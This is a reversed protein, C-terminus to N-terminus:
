KREKLYSLVEEMQSKLGDIQEQQDDIRIYAKQLMHAILMIFESYRVGLNYQVNGDEDLDPVEIYQDTETDHIQKMKVDRCYAAVEMDTLGLEAMAAKLDQAIIGLHVRDGNNFMYSVPKLMFFLKEYLASIDRIDHKKNRDSTNISGNKAYVTSWKSDSLGCPHGEDNDPAVAGNSYIRGTTWLQSHVTFLGSYLDCQRDQSIDRFCIYNLSSSYGNNTLRGFNLKTDSTSDPSSSIVKVNSGFDADCIYYANKAIMVNAYVTGTFDGSCGSFVKGSITTGTINEAAVHEATIKLANVFSTTVTDNIIQTIPNKGTNFFELGDESMKMLLVNDANRVEIVGDDTGGAVVTGGKFTKGSITTGTINEAAVHEATIKLANVFETTVTNDIITTIPKSGDGYFKLGQVSMQVLLNNKADRVEINGNTNDFGGVTLTGGQIISATLHGTNIFDAVISGDQTIATTYPGNYGTPSYGLGGKNWRWVKTAKEINPDDMILIEDPYKGGSSSRIVVYGGLGGSILQTATQIAKEMFTQTPQKKITQSQESVTDSLTSQSEGLEISIYKNTIANYTTKICKSTASVGLLPFEVNVTDCLRVTELLAMMEYEKTQSLQEFSVTLSVIPVGINNKDVYNQALERIEDESPYQDDWEYSNEWENSLDLPLIRTYDYTGATKLTKEPLEIMGWEDSYWFPYVATYVNSCSEEQKLDTMNKGYRITVGRNTGRNQHLIVNFGNFEYEGDGGYSELISESSGGLLSRMSVPKLITFEGSASMDTSLKFPHSVIANSQTNSIAAKVDSVSFPSVPYGSMDYSIHEAKITVLGNIPKSIDYIRFPQPESYPNPKAVIIRRLKLDSYRRGSIHYEMELEFSGNREEVVECKLAESLGGLGNTQFSTATSEFLRILSDVM